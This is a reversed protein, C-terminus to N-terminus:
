SIDDSGGIQWHSDGEPVILMKGKGQGEGRGQGERASQWSGGLILMSYLQRISDELDGLKRCVWTSSEVLGSVKGIGTSHAQAQEHGSIETVVREM